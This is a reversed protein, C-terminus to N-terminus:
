FWWDNWLFREPFWGELLSITEAEPEGAQGAAGTCALREQQWPLHKRLIERPRVSGYVMASLERIDLEVAAAAGDGSPTSRGGDDLPHVRLQAGDSELRYRGENWPGYEDRLRITVAGAGAAPLGNLAAPVDVLRVMWPHRIRKVEVADDIDGTWPFIRGDPSAPAANMVVTACQDIHLAIYRLVAALGSFESFRYTSLRLVGDPEAGEKRFTLGGILRGERRFLILEEDELRRKRLEPNLSELLINGHRFYEGDGDGDGTGGLDIPGRDLATYEQWGEEPSCRETVIGQAAPANLWPTFSRTPYTITMEDDSSAYGFRGYFSVRFPRLMSVVLGERHMEALAEQMLRRVIGRRRAEPYSVVGAIGGMNRVVGRLFHSYRYLHVAATLRGEEFFGIIERPHMRALDLENSRRPPYNGFGYVRLKLLEEREEDRIHRIEEAM